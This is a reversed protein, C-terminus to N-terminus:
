NCGLLIRSEEGCITNEFLLIKYIFDAEINNDRLKSIKHNYFNDYDDKTIPSYSKPKLSYLFRIFEKKHEKWIRPDLEEWFTYITLFVQTRTWASIYERYEDDSQKTSNDLKARKIYADVYKCINSIYKIHCEYSINNKSSECLTYLWFLASQIANDFSYKNIYKEKPRFFKYFRYPSKMFAKAKKERIKLISVVFNFDDTFNLLFDLIFIFVTIFVNILVLQTLCM